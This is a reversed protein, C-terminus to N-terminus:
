KMSLLMMRDWSPEIDTAAALLSLAVGAAGMLLGREAVATIRGATSQAAFFGGVGDSSRMRLLHRFWKQSAEKFVPEGTSQFLRNFMHAVGAAGHCLGCDIVGSNRIPRRAVTKAIRRGETRWNLNKVSTAAVMLAAAIGLDGYCWAIRTPTRRVGPGVNHPFISTRSTKFKQSLLWQVSGDLLQYAKSYTEKPLRINGNSKLSFVQALFAIVGASGHALGLDYLGRPLEKRKWGALLRPPTFWCIGNSSRLAIDDLRDIIKTLCSAALEGPLQELHYIGLGVLGSILDYHDRWPTAALRENLIQDIARTSDDAPDLLQQRLHAVSWAIGTYGSFLSGDM